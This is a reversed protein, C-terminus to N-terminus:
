TVNSLDIAGIVPATSAQIAAPTSARAREKDRERVEEERADGEGVM